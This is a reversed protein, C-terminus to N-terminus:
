QEGLVSDLAMCAYFHLTYMKSPLPIIFIYHDTITILSLLYLSNNDHQLFTFHPSPKSSNLIKCFFQNKITSYQVTLDYVHTMYTTPETRHMLNGSYMNNEEVYSIINGWFNRQILVFCLATSIIRRFRSVRDSIQLTINFIIGHSSLYQVHFFIIYHIKVSM